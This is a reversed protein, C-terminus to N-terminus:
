KRQNWLIQTGEKGALVIDIDGDADMDATRIQLGIGVQGKNIMHQKFTNTAKDWAYYCVLPPEKGGPDGGNHARVRKGTILEDVGDGDLDAMHLAHPQSFSDDIMHEEFRVKGEADAGKGQWLFLGYDHGKGWVIDTIGDGDIDRIVVPISAHIDWDPHYTWLGSFPGAEPREYWGAGVYIDEHGDNNIDGFGMGHGHTKEGIVFPELSPVDKGERTETALRWLVVDSNKDWSNVIWEPTGDGDIDRFFTGENQSYGTDKLLHKPWYFGQLLADGGPNEFWYVETPIFSGAIVDLRGDKNVDHAFEGNSQVYGNWDEIVRVPRAAWDGNHYWNRGAVVDLKGDGDFDAVDCGENADVTLLQVDFKVPHEAHAQFAAAIACALATVVLLTGQRQRKM